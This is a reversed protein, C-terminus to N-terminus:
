RDHVRIRVWQFLDQQQFTAEHDRRKLTVVLPCSFSLPLKEKVIELCNGGAQTERALLGFFVPAGHCLSLLLDSWVEQTGDDEVLERCGATADIHPCHDVTLLAERCQLQEETSDEVDKKELTTSPRLLDAAHDLVGIVDDFCCLLSV